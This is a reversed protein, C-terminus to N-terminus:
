KGGDREREREREREKEQWYIKPAVQETNFSRASVPNSSTGKGINDVPTFPYRKKGVGWNGM